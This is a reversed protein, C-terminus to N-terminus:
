RIFSSPGRQPGLDILTPQNVAPLTGPLVGSFKRGDVGLQPSLPMAFSPSTSSTGPGPAPESLATTAGAVALGKCYIDHGTSSFLYFGLLRAVALNALEARAGAADRLRMTRASTLRVEVCVM